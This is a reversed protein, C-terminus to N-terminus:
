SKRFGNQFRITGGTDRGVVVGLLHAANLHLEEPLFVAGGMLGAGGAGVGAGVSAEHEHGFDSDGKLVSVGLARDDESRELVTDLLYRPM